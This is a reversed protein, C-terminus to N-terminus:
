QGWGAYLAKQHPSLAESICVFPLCKFPLKITHEKLLIITAPSHSGIGFIKALNGTGSM